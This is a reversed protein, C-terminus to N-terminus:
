HSRVFELMLTALDLSQSSKTERSVSPDGECTVSIIESMVIHKVIEVNDLCNM